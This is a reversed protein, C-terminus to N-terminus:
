GIDHQGRDALASQADFRTRVIGAKQGDKRREFVGFGAGANGRFAGEEGGEFAAALKREAGPAADDAPLKMEIGAHEGGVSAFIQALARAALDARRFFEATTQAERKPGSARIVDKMERASDTSSRLDFGSSPFRM